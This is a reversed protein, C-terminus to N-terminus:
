LFELSILFIAVLCIFMDEAEGTKIIRLGFNEKKLPYLFPVGMKTCSDALLHTSYSTFWVLGIGANFRSILIASALLLLLSHTITRHRVGPIFLDWDPAIGGLVGIISFTPINLYNIIPIVTAISIALHTKKMM